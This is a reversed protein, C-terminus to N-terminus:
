ETSGQLTDIVTRLELMESSLDLKRSMQEQIELDRDSSPCTLPHAIPLSGCM